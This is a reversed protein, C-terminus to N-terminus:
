YLGLQSCQDLDDTLVVKTSVNRYSMSQLPVTHQFATPPMCTLLALDSFIEFNIIKLDFLM